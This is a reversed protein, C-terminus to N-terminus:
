ETSPQVVTERFLHEFEDTQTAARTQFKVKFDSNVTQTGADVTTQERDLSAESEDEIESNVQEADTAWDNEVNGGLGEEESFPIEETTEWLQDIKLM